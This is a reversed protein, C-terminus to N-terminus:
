PHHVLRRVSLAGDITVRHTARATVYSLFTRNGFELRANCGALVPEPEAPDLLLLAHSSFARSRQLGEVGIVLAAKRQAPHRSRWCLIVPAGKTLEKECFRLITTPGGLITVPRFGANLEWVFSGLESLTLGHLYHPWARDWFNAEQGDSHQTINVADSLGGMMALAMAVCHLTSGGDWNGQRSFLPTRSIMSLLAPM